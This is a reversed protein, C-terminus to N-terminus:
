NKPSLWRAERWAFLKWEGTQRTALWTVSHDIDSTSHHFDYLTWRTRIEVQAYGDQETVTVARVRGRVPRAVGEAVLRRSMHGIMGIREGIKEVAGARTITLSLLGRVCEEPSYRTGDPDVWSNGAIAARTKPLLWRQYLEPTTYTRVPALVEEATHHGPAVIDERLVFEKELQEVMRGLEAAQARGFRTAAVPAVQPKSTAFPVAGGDGATGPDASTSAKPTQQRTPSNTPGAAADSDSTGCSTLLLAACAAAPLATRLSRPLFM